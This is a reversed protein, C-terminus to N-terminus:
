QDESTGADEADVPRGSTGQPECFGTYPHNEGLGSVALRAVHGPKAM